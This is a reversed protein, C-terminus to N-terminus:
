RTRLWERLSAEHEDYYHGFFQGEVLPENFGFRGPTTLDDDPVARILGALREFTGDMEALVERPPRARYQARIWANVEDWDEIEDEAGMAAPWPAPPATGGPGAELRALTREQWFALHAALDKFSWEGMAGPEEMREEGVEAVLAQWAAREAQIENLLEDRTKM